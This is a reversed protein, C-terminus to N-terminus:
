ESVVQSIEELTFLKSIHEQLDKFIAKESRDANVTIFDYEKAMIDFQDRLQLQYAMFSDYLNDACQIDMGAEWYNLGRGHIVRTVLNKVEARLYLIIDPKLSFGYVDRAWQPNAGRVVDRAIVSYFYRDSLVVFGAKLAPIIQRELRDAFDTAYFLSMTLPSLTHGQKAVELGPQTLNSRKLGTDSVAYGDGELWQKLLEIQTTRGVGDNGELVILRGQLDLSPSYPYGAGYFAANEINM